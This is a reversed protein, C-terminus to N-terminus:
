EKYGSIICKALTRTNVGDPYRELFAYEPQCYFDTLIRAYTKILDETTCPIVVEASTNTLSGRETVVPFIYSIFIKSLTVKVTISRDLLVARCESEEPELTIMGTVKNTFRELHDPDQKFGLSMLAHFLANDM